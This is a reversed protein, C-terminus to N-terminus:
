QSAPTPLAAIDDILALLDSHIGQWPQALDLTRVSIQHDLLQYDLSLHRDVRPYLLVGIPRPLGPRSAHAVYTHLQYLYRSELTGPGRRSRHTPETFKCELLIRTDRGTLLVDGQMGPLLRRDAASAQVNWHITPKAVQFVQQERRLFERVFGEFVHGMNTPQGDWREFRTRPISLDDDPRILLDELVLECIHLLFRNVADLRQLRATALHRPTPAIDTIRGLFRTHARLRRALGGPVRPHGAVRRLAAKVLQNFAIDATLGDIECCLVRRQLLGRAISTTLAIRGRPASTDELHSRYARPVGRRRLHAVGADLVNGYLAIPAQGRIASVDVLGRAELCNRAYCLLYFLNQVPVRTM